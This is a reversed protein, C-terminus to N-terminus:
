RFTTLLGDLTAVPADVNRAVWAPDAAPRFARETMLVTATAWWGIAMAARAAGDPIALGRARCYADVVDRTSPEEWFRAVFLDGLDREPGSRADQAILSLVDAGALGAPHWTDWDILGALRGDTVLLNNLWVDGHELVTTVHATWAEAAARTAALVDAHRPFITALRDLRERLSTPGPAGAPLAALLAVTDATLTADLTRPHGGDLATETSWRVGATEGGAVPRPVRPISAAELAQLGARGHLPDRAHGVIAVRLEVPGAADVALRALASGDGSPRLRLPTTAGAAATVHDIRREPRDSRVLEVIAGSMTARRIAQRVRGPRRVPPLRHIEVVHLGAPPRTRLRALAVERRTAQILTAPTPRGRAQMRGWALVDVDAPPAAASWDPAVEVVAWRVAPDVPRLLGALSAFIPPRTFPDM